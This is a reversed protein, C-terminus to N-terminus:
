IIRFVVFEFGVLEVFGVLKVFGVLEVLEVLEVLGEAVEMLKM